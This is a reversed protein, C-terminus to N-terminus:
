DPQKLPGGKARQWAELQAKSVRINWIMGDHLVALEALTMAVFPEVEEIGSEHCFERIAKEAAAGHLLECVIRGMILKRPERYKIRLPDITGISDKVVSYMRSSRRYAWSFLDIMPALENREYIALIAAIYDTQSVDIFSLPCLNHRFFPINCTLRATRKNVDEFAQLYSLHALLFFSQEFPDQIRRAKLAILELCERLAHPNALPQYASHSIHVTMQRVAGLSAPDPLLDQALLHHTNRIVMSDIDFSQVNEVLFLIAEKHNSIMVAEERVKGDASLGEEVLRQTELRSYTNGELRSSNYSLDTLLRQSIQRAYTGAALETDFRKGVEHLERRLQAPLYGGHQPDYDELFGRNYSVKERLFPQVALFGLRERSVPGFVAPSIDKFQGFQPSQSVPLTGVGQGDATAPLYVTTPGRGQRLTRGEKALAALRRQLSKSSISFSLNQAIRASSVGGPFRRIIAQIETLQEPISLTPPTDM